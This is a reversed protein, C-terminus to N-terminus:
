SIEWFGVAFPWQGCIKARRGKIWFKPYKFYGLNQILPLLALIDSDMMSHNLLINDEGHCSPDNIQGFKKMDALDDDHYVSNNKGM